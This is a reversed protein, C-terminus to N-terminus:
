ATLRSIADRIQNIRNVTREKNSATQPQKRALDQLVEEFLAVTERKEEQSAAVMIHLLM